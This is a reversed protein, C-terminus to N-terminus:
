KHLTLRCIKIQLVFCEGSVLTQYIGVLGALGDCPFSADKSQRSPALLPTVHVGAGQFHSVPPARPLSLEARRGAGVGQAQELFM